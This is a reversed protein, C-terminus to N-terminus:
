DDALEFKLTLPLREAVIHGRVQAPRYRARLAYGMAADDLREYGSSGTVWARAPCGNKAVLVDVLVLGQERQERSAAPYVSDVPTNSVMMPRSSGSTKTTPHACKTNGEQVKFPVFDKRELARHVQAADEAAAKEYLQRIQPLTTNMADVFLRAEIQQEFSAEAAEIEKAYTAQLGNATLNRVYRVRDPRPTAHWRWYAAIANYTDQERELMAAVEALSENAGKLDRASLSDDAARLLADVEERASPVLVNQRMDDALTRGHADRMLRSPTSLITDRQNRIGNYTDTLDKLSSQLATEAPMDQALLAILLTAPLWM